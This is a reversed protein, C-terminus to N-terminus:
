AMNSRMVVRSAGPRARQFTSRHWKFGSRAAPAVKTEVPPRTPKVMGIQKPASQKPKPEPEAGKRRKILIERGNRNDYIEYSGYSVPYEVDFRTVKIVDGVITYELNRITSIGNKGDDCIYDNGYERNLIKKTGDYIHLIRMDGIEYFNSRDVDINMRNARDQLANDEFGWTWYNPFGNMAEFERGAVSVIGGLAHRFGYHHRIAGEPPTYTLLDKQYPLTDIDNFVYLFDLYQDPYLQAAAMFGINKIAGRNFPREDCQEVFYICYDVFVEYDEMLYTMYNKFFFMQPERNKYPVIFFLFM